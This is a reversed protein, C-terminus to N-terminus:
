KKDDKSISVAYMGKHGERVVFTVPEGEILGQLGSRILQQRHVFIDRNFGEAVVFGYGKDSNFWKTRGSVRVSDESM